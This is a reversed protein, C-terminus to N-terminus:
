CSVQRRFDAALLNLRFVNPLTVETLSPVFGAAYFSVPCAFLSPNLKLFALFDFCFFSHGSGANHIVM